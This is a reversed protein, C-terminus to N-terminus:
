FIDTECIGLDFRAEVREFAGSLRLIQCYRLNYFHLPLIIVSNYLIYFFRDHGLKLNQGLIQRSLRLFNV